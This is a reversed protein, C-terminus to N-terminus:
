TLVRGLQNRSNVGLKAFVKSLHYQVTPPSIFLRAGIEPNSLGESALQAVRAEQTTLQSRTDVPRKRFSAGTAQLERGAREAFAEMGMATFLEFATRLTKRSDAVRGNARLWEGYLLHARAFEGRVRTRGLREIADRYAEEADKDTSLLARCRSEIGLGWDSGAAETTESLRRFADCADDTRGLRAAAEVLEVLVSWPEVGMVPPYQSAERAADLAEEHRGLSNCLLAKAFGTIILGFGEGRRVLDAVTRDILEVLEDDRGRWAALLVAGYSAVPIGTAESAAELEGVLLNAKDLEGMIVHAGMRSTLAIPLTALAGVERAIRVHRATELTAEDWFNGALIHALWLWRMEDASLTSSAFAKLAEKLLPIATAYGDTFRVALGDLLLDAPSPPDPAPPGFRVAEAVDRVNTGTTLHAGFMAALFADLFTERTLRRDFDQLEEAARLLLSVVDGGRNLTLAIQARLLDLKAHEFDSTPVAAAVELFVLAKDPAGAQHAADAAALARQARRSADPTLDMAKALFAAAAALGGRGQAREASSELDRAVEEDPGDTAQARHWARRDPDMRPDTAEALVRHAEQRAQDSASWYIASRVLPHRFRVRVGFEILDADIAPRAATAAIGALGAARWVLVPDGVPDASALLILLRTDSPLAEARQRFSLEITGSLDVARPLTFGGALETATLSRPLELLALPNGRTEAVIQDRIRPELPGTLESDLLARADEQKLGGIELNPLGTLEGGLTRTGFILGVSEAGLRRAVFALIQASAGDLWQEDDVLCLLPQKSAVDSLLSLTALGVLFRDEVPRPSMGFTTRLADRQPGPLNTLHELMTVCLQHLGAFPIEMETQVGSCRGIRCDSARRGLYELMATKGVGPEGHVVLARSQGERVAELLGDLVGREEVRDTLTAQRRRSPSASPVPV